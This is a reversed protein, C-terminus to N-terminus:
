CCILIGGGVEAVGIFELFVLKSEDEIDIV